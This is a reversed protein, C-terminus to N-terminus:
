TDIKNLYNVVEINRENYWTTSASLIVKVNAGAEEILYRVIKLDGRSAAWRLACDRDAHVDAGQQILYKVIDLYGYYSAYNLVNDGQLHIDIGSKLLVKVIELHGNEVAVKVISPAFIDSGKEILYKVTELYGHIIASRLIAGNGFNIDLREKEVLHKVVSIEGEAAAQLLLTHGQYKQFLKLQKEFNGETYEFDFDKRMQTIHYTAKSFFHKVSEEKRYKEIEPYKSLRRRLFADDCVSYWMKKNISCVKLLKEDDIYKLIERDTDLIGTLSM